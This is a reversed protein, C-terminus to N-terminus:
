KKKAILEKQLDSMFSVFFDKFVCSRESRGAGFTFLLDQTQTAAKGVKFIVVTKGPTTPSSLIGGLTSAKVAIRTVQPTPPHATFIKDIPQDLNNKLTKLSGATAQVVEGINHGADVLHVGPPLTRACYQMM